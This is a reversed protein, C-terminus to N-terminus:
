SRVFWDVGFASVVSYDVQLDRAAWEWDICYLPWGSGDTDPVVGIEEALERAYEVFYSERILTAGYEFDTIGAGDLEEFAVLWARADDDDRGEDSALYERVEEATEILDRSDIVDAYEYDTYERAMVVGKRSM